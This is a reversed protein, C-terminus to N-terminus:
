AALLRTKARLGPAILRDVDALSGAIPKECVVQQGAALTALAQPVHLSPPTCIDIIEEDDMRLAEEFAATRRPIAFEDGIAALRAPDLDCLALVRFKDQHRSYGELIHLRGIGCGIVAVNWIKAM